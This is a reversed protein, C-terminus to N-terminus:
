VRVAVLTRAVKDHIGQRLPDLWAWAYVLVAVGYAILAAGGAPPGGTGNLYSPSLLFPAVVGALGGPLWRLAAVGYSPKDATMLRVVHIKMASKGPTQGSTGVFGIEFSASVLVLIVFVTWRVRGVDDTAAGVVASIVISATVSIGLVLFTDILRALVRRGRPALVVSPSDEAEGMVLLPGRPLTETETQTGDAPAAHEGQSPAARLLRVGAVVMFLLVAAVIWIM